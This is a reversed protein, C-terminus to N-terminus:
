ADISIPVPVKRETLSRRDGSSGADRNKFGKVLLQQDLLYPILDESSWFNAQELFESEDQDGTKSLNSEQEILKDVALVSGRSRRRVLDSSSKGVPIKKGSFGTLDLKKL